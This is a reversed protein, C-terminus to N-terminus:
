CLNQHFLFDPYRVEIINSAQSTSGSADMSTFNDTQKGFPLNSIFNTINVSTVSRGDEARIKVAKEDCVCFERGDGPIKAYVGLQLASLLTSKGHFGGGVILNVGKKMGMGKISTKLNPLVFSVTMSDPAQFRVVKQEKSDQMPRDDSGSARPLVAGNPVFAVLGNVSLQNRLWHQDEVSLVHNQVRTPNIASYVLSKQVFLPIVCRFIDIAKEGLITRGQAPLNVTIQATIYGTSPDVSVASQKLIHQTPECIQIDGGKAGSWGQGNTSQDAGMSHCAAFFARNIYDALAIARVNNQHLFPPFKASSSPVVIRCATPRAFPDSQARGIFLQFQPIDNCTWGKTFSEIDHYAPYSRNDIRTLIAILDQFSGGGSEGSSRSKSAEGDNSSRGGGGRGRGGGRGYKNKYYEGRGGGRGGRGRGDRGSM